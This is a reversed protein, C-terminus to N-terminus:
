GEMSRQPDIAEFSAGHAEGYGRSIKLATEIGEEVIKFIEQQGLQIMSQRAQAIALVNSQHVQIGLYILSAVVAIAAIIESMYAYHELTM